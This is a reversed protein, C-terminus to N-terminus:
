SLCTAADTQFELAVYVEADAATRKGRNPCINQQKTKAPSASPQALLLPQHESRKVVNADWFM